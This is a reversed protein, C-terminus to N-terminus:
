HAVLTVRLGEVPNVIMKIYDKKPCKQVNQPIGEPIVKRHVFTYMSPYFYVYGLDGNLM